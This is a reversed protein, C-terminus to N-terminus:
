KRSLLVEKAENIRSALYTSGGQDPHLKMMLRRHAARIEAETAGPKLNLVDYAEKRSMLGAQDRPQRAEERSGCGSRRDRWGQSRRDLYAELLRAGQQDTGSIDELLELVEADRLSSLARGAFRGKLCRGEMLGSDHDLMMELTETRVGSKQGGQKRPTRFFGEFGPWPPVPLGLRHGYILLMFAAFAVFVPL